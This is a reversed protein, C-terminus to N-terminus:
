ASSPMRSQSRHSSNLRTSKRDIMIAYEGSYVEQAGTNVDYFGLTSIDLTLKATETRGKPVNIRAFAKLQKRPLPIPLKPPAVYLQVVEDADVIGTNRIDIEVTLVSDSSLQRASLRPTGYEFSTYSLGHGFPFLPKGTFYLYTSKTRIINYDSRFLTTYPFLTSRPPRRIM